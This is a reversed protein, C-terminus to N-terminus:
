QIGRNNLNKKKTDQKLEDKVTIHSLLALLEESFKSDRLPTSLIAEPKM